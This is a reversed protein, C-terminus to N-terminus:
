IREYISLGGGPSVQTLENGSITVTYTYTGYQSTVTLQNGSASWTGTITELNTDLTQYYNINSNTSMDYSVTTLSSNTFIVTNKKGQSNPKVDLLNGFGDTEKKLQWTGIINQSLSLNESSSSSPPSTVVGTALNIKMTLNEAGSLIVNAVNTGDYNAQFNYANGNFVISGSEYSGSTPYPFSTQNVSLHSNTSFSFSYIRDITGSVVLNQTSLTFSNKAYFGSLTIIGNTTTNIIHSGDNIQCVLNKTQIEISDVLNENNTPNGTFDRLYLEQKGSSYNYTCGFLSVTDGQEYTIRGYGVGLVEERAARQNLQLKARINYNNNYTTLSTFNQALQQALLEQAITSESLRTTSPAPVTGVSTGGGGGGCGVLATVLVLLTCLFIKSFKM